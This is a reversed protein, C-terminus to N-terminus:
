QTATRIDVCRRRSTANRNLFGNDGGPAQAIPDFRWQAPHGPTTSVDEDGPFVHRHKDVGTKQCEQGSSLANGGCWWSVPPARLEFLVYASRPVSVCRSHM